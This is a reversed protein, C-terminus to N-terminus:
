KGYQDDLYDVRAKIWKKLYEEEESFDLSIGNSGSWRSVERSEAGSRRLLDRYATFRKILSSPSLVGKRLERYRRALQENWNDPDLKYLREFLANQMGGNLLYRRYNNDAICNSKRGDWDRGFTGDLDWPVPTLMPSKKQDYVAWYMNKGSNDVAHLLEIFLYYDRVVPLDFTAAVERCFTKDDAAGALAIGEYLPKWDTQTKRGPEPYKAEWNDWTESGNDYGSPRQGAIRQNYRDFGMLTWTSWQRSKYLCGHVKGGESRKLQLQKRDIRESFNYVGHYRGNYFVEVLRGRVGTRANRESAAYYPKASMDNWLDMAVRNRMRARDVAMADLIWYNDDRMDLWQRSQKRGDSDVFKVAFSKKDFFTAYDGRYRMKVALTSDSDHGNPDSLRFTAASFQKSLGSASIEIIPLYTFTVQARSVTDGNSVLALRYIRGGDPKQFRCKGKTSTEKGNIYLDGKGANKVVVRGVYDNGEGPDAVSCYYLQRSSDYVPRRGDITFDLATAQVVARNEVRKSSSRTAGTNDAIEPAKKKGDFCEDPLNILSGGFHTVVQGKKNVLFFRENDSLINSSNGSYTGVIFSNQRVDLYHSEESVNRFGMGASAVYITWQSRTGHLTTSLYMYRRDDSRVGDYTFYRGSEANRITYTGDDNLTFVWWNDDAAMRSYLLAQANTPSPIISGDPWLICRIQYKEGPVFEVQAM